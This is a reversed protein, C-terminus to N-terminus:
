TALQGSGQAAALRRMLVVREDLPWVEFGLQRGLWALTAPRYFSVHTPDRPYSWRQFADADAADVLWTMIGLWGGPRVLQALRWWDAGPQRFHEVVETCTVFDYAGALLWDDPRYLPDYECMDMGAERLMRGLAPGPGCGYDLGCMGPTLRELLPTALRGLFARYHADAPDNRHLDYETKERVPDLHSSPDAFIL